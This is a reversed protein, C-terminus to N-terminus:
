RSEPVITSLGVREDVTRSARLAMSRSFVHGVGVLRAQQDDVVIGQNGVGEGVDEALVEFNGGGLRAGLDLAQQHLEVLRRLKRQDIQAQWGLRVLGVFAECQDGVQEADRGADLNEHEGALAVFGVGAMGAREAGDIEDGLGAFGFAEFGQEEVGQQHLVCFAAGVLRRHRGLIGADDPGARRHVLQALLDLLIGGRGKGHQDFAFRAAALFADGGAQM